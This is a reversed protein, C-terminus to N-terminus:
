IKFHESTPEFSKSSSGLYNIELTKLCQLGRLDQLEYTFEKFYLQLYTLNLVMTVLPQFLFKNKRVILKEVKHM